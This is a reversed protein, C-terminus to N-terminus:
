KTLFKLREIKVISDWIDSNLYFGNNKQELKYITELIEDESFVSNKAQVFGGYYNTQILRVTAFFSTKVTKVNSNIIKTLLKKLLEINKFPIETNFTFKTCENKVRTFYINWKKANVKVTEIDEKIQKKISILSYVLFDKPLIDDYYYPNDFYRELFLNNVNIFHYEQNLKKLNVLDISHKYIFNKYKTERIRFFIFVSLFSLIILFITATISILIAM